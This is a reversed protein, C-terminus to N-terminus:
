ASEQPFVLRLMECIPFCVPHRLPTAASSDAKARTARAVEDTAKAKAKAEHRSRLQPLASAEAGRLDGRLCFAARFPGSKWVDRVIGSHFRM